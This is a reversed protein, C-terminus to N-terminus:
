PDSQRERRPLSPKRRGGTSHRKAKFLRVSGGDCTGCEVETGYAWAEVADWVDDANRASWEQADLV